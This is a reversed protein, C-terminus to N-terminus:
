VFIVAHWFPPVCVFGGLRILSEGSAVPDALKGLVYSKPPFKECVFFHVFQQRGKRHMLHIWCNSSAKTMWDEKGTQTSEISKKPDPHNLPFEPLVAGLPQNGAGKSAECPGNRRSFDVLNGM